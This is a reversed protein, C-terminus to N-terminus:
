FFDGQRDIQTQYQSGEAGQACKIIDAAVTKGFDGSERTNMRLTGGGHDQGKPVSHGTHCYQTSGFTLERHTVVLNDSSIHDGLSGGDYM